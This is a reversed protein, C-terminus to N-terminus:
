IKKRLRAIPIGLLERYKAVTRRALKIGEKQLIEAIKEDNLPGHPDEVEIIDKVKRKVVLNSLDEGTSTEIGSTFFHKLSYVGFETQVYKSNVVRSITSIDVGVVQAVDKYIM